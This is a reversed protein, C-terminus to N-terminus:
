AAKPMGPKIEGGSRKRVTRLVKQFITEKGAKRQFDVQENRKEEAMEKQMATQERAKRRQGIIEELERRHATLITGRRKQELSPQVTERPNEVISPISEEPRGGAVEGGLQAAADKLIELPEAVVQKAIGKGLGNIQSKTSQAM